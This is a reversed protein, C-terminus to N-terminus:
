ELFYTTKFFTWKSIHKLTRTRPNTSGARRGGLIKAPRPAPTQRVGRGTPLCPSTLPSRAGGPARRSGGSIRPGLICNQGEGCPPARLTWRLNIVTANVWIPPPCKKLGVFGSNTWKVMLTVSRGRFGRPGGGWVGPGGGGMDVFGSNTWKVMITVSCGRFGRPGGGWVGPGGGWTWSGM